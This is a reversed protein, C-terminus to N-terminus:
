SKRRRSPNDLKAQIIKRLRRERTLNLKTLELEKKLFLKARLDKYKLEISQKKMRFYKKEWNVQKM